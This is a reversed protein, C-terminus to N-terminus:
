LSGPLWSPTLLRLVGAFPIGTLVVLSAYVGSEMPVLVASAGSRFRTTGMSVFRGSCSSPSATSSVVSGTLCCHLDYGGGTAGRERIIDLVTSGGSVEDGRDVFAEICVGIRFRVKALVSLLHVIPGVEVLQHAPAKGGAQPPKSTFPELGQRGVGDM